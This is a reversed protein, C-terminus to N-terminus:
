PPAADPGPQDDEDVIFPAGAYRHDNMVDRTNERQRDIDNRSMCVRERFRSGTIQVYRCREIEGEDIEGEVVIDGDPNEADQEAESSDQTDQAFGPCPLLAIATAGILYKFM